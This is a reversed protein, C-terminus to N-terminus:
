RGVLVIKSSVAMVTHGSKAFKRWKPESNYYNPWKSLTCKDVQCFKLRIQAMKNQNQAYKLQQFLGFM